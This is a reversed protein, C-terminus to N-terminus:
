TALSIYVTQSYDSYGACFTKGDVKLESLVVSRNEDGHPEIFITKQDPLRVIKFEDVDMDIERSFKEVMEILKTRNM